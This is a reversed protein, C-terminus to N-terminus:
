TSTTTYIKQKQKYRETNCLLEKDHQKHKKWNLNKDKTIRLFKFENVNELTKDKCKFEVVDQEFGRLKQILIIPSYCQKRKPQM